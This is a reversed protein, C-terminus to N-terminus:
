SGCGSQFALAAGLALAMVITLPGVATLAVRNARGAPLLNAGALALNGLGMAGFAAVYAVRHWGDYLFFGLAGIALVVLSLAVLARAWRAPIRTPWQAHTTLSDDM